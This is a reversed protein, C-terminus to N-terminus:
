FLLGSKLAFFEAIPGLVLAPVFTLAGIVLVTGLWFIGFKLTDTRLTGPTTSVIPKVAVSGALAMM